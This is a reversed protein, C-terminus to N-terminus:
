DFNFTKGEQDFCQNWSFSTQKLGNISKDLKCITHEQCKEMFSDLQMMYISEDLNENLFTTKVGMKWIKYDLHIAIYILIRISKLIAVPLFTEAYVFGLKKSYGKM